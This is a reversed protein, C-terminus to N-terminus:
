NKTCTGTLEARDENIGYVNESNTVSRDVIRPTFSVVMQPYSQVCSSAVLLSPKCFYLAPHRADPIKGKCTRPNYRFPTGNRLAIWTSDKVGARPYQIFFDNMAQRALELRRQAGNCELRAAELLSITEM